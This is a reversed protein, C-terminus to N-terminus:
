RRAALWDLFVAHQASQFRNVDDAAVFQLSNSKAKEVCAEVDALSAHWDKRAAYVLCPRPGIAGLLEDYDYPIESERGLYLGLRPLLAHWESLRRIGGTPRAGTDSRLPTFGCFTAVGTVDDDLAAAHLAVQGGLSYGLLYVKERDFEPLSGGAVIGRGGRVFRVADRVDRVMAGLKSWRPHREYFDAGELLRDGFGLQDFALVTYGAAALRYYIATGEVGYGENSGHSYNYPHLWVVLPMLGDSDGPERQSILSGHVNEGFSVQQRQIGAPKWRDRSWKAVGPAAEDRLILKPNAREPADGLMWRVRAKLDADGEPSVLDGPRQREKWRQWDFEHLLKEPFDARVVTGRGFALDFWDLNMRIHEPTIPNHNGSRYQLCLNQGANLLRYARKASRYTREVAFTPDSGDNYATHLLCARPAILAILGNSEVPLENERGFFTKLSSRAWEDPYDRVTEMFADRGTFRYGAAAPSGSSRAVVATIREDFAAAYLSQKGYRSHGIIGVKKGDIAYGDSPPAGLLHDLARSALWAQIALSSSWSAEPYEKKFIRWANEYGPFEKERHNYDVGPYFCVVYGRRVAEEAWAMQYHRPQTLLLPRPSLADDPLWLRIRFSAQKPTEFTLEVERVSWAGTGRSEGVVRSKLLPPTVVPFDGLYTDCWLRRIEERRRQWDRGDDVPQGNLFQLVPPLDASRYASQQAWSVTPALLLFVFLTARNMM